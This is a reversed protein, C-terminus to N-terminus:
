SGSQNKLSNNMKLFSDVFRQIDGDLVRDTAATEENTRHDKVLQYPALVYSRIQSGWENAKQQGLAVDKEQQRKEMEKEYLAAKLMKLCAERNQLQSRQSQCQVVIGTPEHTMRVASDTRNVHQGGKGSSRYTDVRVEEMNVEINIDDSVEPWTSVSCFSTHRRANSDFPSIRVLRHVGTEAKLMGYAFPGQISLTASKIGAEDGDTVSLLEVRYGKNESYRTYMRLLMQAWDCAETGGAGSNVSMYCSNGDLEGSLLSQIELQESQKTISKIEEFVDAFASEDSEEQAMELLVFADDVRQVLQQWEGVTEDLATKEQNIKQMQQHNEWIAPNQSQRDLEEIRKLKM